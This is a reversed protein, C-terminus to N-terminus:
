SMWVGDNKTRYTKDSIAPLKMGLTRFKSKLLFPLISFISKGMVSPSDSWGLGLCVVPLFAPRGMSIKLISAVHDSRKKVKKKCGHACHYHRM